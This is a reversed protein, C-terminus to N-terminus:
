NRLVHGIKKIFNIYLCKLLFIFIHHSEKKEINNYIFRVIKFLRQNKNKLSPRYAFISVVDDKVWFRKWLKLIAQMNLTM